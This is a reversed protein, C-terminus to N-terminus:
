VNKTHNGLSLSISTRRISHEPSKKKDDSYEESCLVVAGLVFAQFFSCRLLATWLCVSGIGFVTGRQPGTLHDKFHQWSSNARDAWHLGM